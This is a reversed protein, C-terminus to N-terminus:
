LEAARATEAAVSAELQTLEAQTEAVMAEAAAVARTREVPNDWQRQAASLTAEREALEAETRARALQGGGAIMRAVVDGNKVPQGDLVLVDQVIGDTLASVSIPYPAPEIWGPAQVTAVGSNTSETTAKVVVPVVKVETAPWLMDTASGAFLMAVAMLIGVPLWIRSGWRIPPMPVAAGTAAPAPGGGGGGRALTRLDGPQKVDTAM